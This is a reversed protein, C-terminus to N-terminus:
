LLTCSSGWPKADGQSKETATTSGLRTQTRTNYVTGLYPEIPSTKARSAFCPSHTTAGSTDEIQHTQVPGCCNGQKSHALPKRGFRRTSHVTLDFFQISKWTSEFIPAPLTPPAERIKLPWTGLSMVWNPATAADSQVRCTPRQLERGCWWWWPETLCTRKRRPDQPNQVHSQKTTVSVNPRGKRDLRLMDAM